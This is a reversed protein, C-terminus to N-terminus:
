VELKGLELVAVRVFNRGKAYSLDPSERFVSDNTDLIALVRSGRCAFLDAKYFVEVGSLTGFRHWFVLVLRL